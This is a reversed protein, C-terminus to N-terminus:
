DRGSAPPSLNPAAPPEPETATANLGEPMEEATGEFVLGPVLSQLRKFAQEPTRHEHINTPRGTLSLVKDVAIGATTALDKASRAANDVQGYDIRRDELRIAKLITHASQAAIERHLHLVSAEIDPAHENCAKAYRQPYQHRWRNVSRPHVNIGAVALQEVARGAHGGCRAMAVLAAQIIEPTHDAYSHLPELDTTQVDTSM